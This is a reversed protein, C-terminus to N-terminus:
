RHMINEMFSSSAMAPLRSSYDPLSPNSRTATSCRVIGMTTLPEHVARVIGGGYIRPESKVHSSATPDPPNSRHAFAHNAPYGPVSDWIELDDVQRSFVGAEEADISPTSFYYMANTWRGRGYEDDVLLVGDYKFQSIGSTFGVYFEYHHWRGDTMNPCHLWRSSAVMLGRAKASYYVYNTQAMTYHVYSDAGNWHPYFIKFNENVRDTVKYTPYRMWFSVYFEDSPWPKPMQKMWCLFAERVTGSSFCRGTGNRGIASINYSPNSLVNWHKDYVTLKSDLIQDNFNEYLLRNAAHSEVQVFFFISFVFIIQKKTRSL